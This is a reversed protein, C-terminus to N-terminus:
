KTELNTIDALFLNKLSTNLEEKNSASTIRSGINGLNSFVNSDIDFGVFSVLINNTLVPIDKTNKNNKNEVLAKLVLEPKDGRTNEGDTIVIFSKFITGSQAIIEAGEALTRGIATNGGPSFNDTDSTINIIEKFNEESMEKMDFLVSPKENFKILGFKLKMNENKINKKYFDHIFNVIETLSESAIKYKEKNDGANKPYDDMSGSVDIAVLISLGLDDQNALATNFNKSFQLMYEGSSATAAETQKPPSRFIKPLVNFLFVVVIIIIVVVFIGCGSKKKVNQAM